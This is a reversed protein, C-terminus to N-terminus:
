GGADLPARRRRSRGLLRAEGRPGRAADAAAGSDRGQALVSMPVGTPSKSEIASYGWRYNRRLLNGFGPRNYHFVIAEPDFVIHGGRRRVEAQWALEEHAYAVPQQETRHHQDGQHEHDPHM